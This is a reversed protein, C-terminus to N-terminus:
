RTYIAGSYGKENSRLNQDATFIGKNRERYYCRDYSEWTEQLVRNLTVSSKKRANNADFTDTTMTTFTQTETTLGDRVRDLNDNQFDTAAQCMYQLVLLCNQKTPDTNENGGCGHQETWELKLISSEIASSQFYKM